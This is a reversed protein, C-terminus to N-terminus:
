RRPAPPRLSAALAAALDEDYLDDVTRVDGRAAAPFGGGSGHTSARPYAAATEARPPASSPPPYYAQYAPYASPAPHIPPSDWGWQAGPASGGGGGGGGGVEWALPVGGDGAGGWLQQPQYASPPPPPRPPEPLPPENPLRDFVLATWSMHMFLEDPSMVAAIGPEACGLLGAEAAVWGFGGKGLTALEAMGSDDAGPHGHPDFVQCPPAPLTDLNHARGGVRGADCRFGDVYQM